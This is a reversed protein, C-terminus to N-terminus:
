KQHVAVIQEQAPIGGEITVRILAEFPEIDGDKSSILQPVLLKLSEEQSVFEAAAETGFTSLGALLLVRKASGIGPIFAIVAYDSGSPDGQLTASFKLPEGPRPRKNLIELEVKGSKGRIAHFVFDDTIQIRRLTQIAIPAGLIILNRRDASELTFSSGRKPRLNLNLAKFDEDLAHMGLVEGVGSIGPSSAPSVGKSDGSAAALDLEPFQAIEAFTVVTDAQSAVFPRWFTAFATAPQTTQSPQADVWERLAIFSMITFLAGCFIVIHAIRPFGGGTSRIVASTLIPEAVLPREGDAKTPPLPNEPEIGAGIEVASLSEGFVEFKPVYAGVPIVIRIASQQFEQYHKALRKRVEGATVRVVPDGNTDYNITRDFLRAGLFRERLNEINGKLTEEVVLSLFDSCRRSPKFCHSELLNNLEKQVGDIDKSSFPAVLDRARCEEGAKQTERL